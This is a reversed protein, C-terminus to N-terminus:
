ESVTGQGRRVSATLIGHKMTRGRAKKQLGRLLVQGSGLGEGMEEAVLIPSQLDPMNENALQTESTADEIM